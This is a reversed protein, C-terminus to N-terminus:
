PIKAILKTRIDDRNLVEVHAITGAVVDLLVMGKDSDLDM